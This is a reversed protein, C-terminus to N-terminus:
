DHNIRDVQTLYTLLYNNIEKLAAEATAAKDSDLAALSAFMEGSAARLACNEARLAEIESTM